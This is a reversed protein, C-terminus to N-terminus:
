CLLPRIALVLALSHNFSSFSASTEYQAFFPKISVCIASFIPM